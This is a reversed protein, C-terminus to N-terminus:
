LFRSVSSVVVVFFKFIDPFSHIARQSVDDPLSIPFFPAFQQWVDRLKLIGERGVFLGAIVFVVGLLLQGDGLFPMKRILRRM